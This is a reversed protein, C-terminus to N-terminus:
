RANKERLKRIRERNAKAAESGPTVSSINNRDWIDGVYNHKVYVQDPPVFIRSCHGHCDACEIGEERERDQSM